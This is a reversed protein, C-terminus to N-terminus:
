FIQRDLFCFCKRANFKGIKSKKVESERTYFIRMGDSSIQKNSNLM